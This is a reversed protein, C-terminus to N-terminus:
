PIVGAGHGPALTMRRAVKPGRLGCLKGTRHDVLRAITLEPHARMLEAARLLEPIASAPVLLTCSTFGSTQQRARYRAQKEAPTLPM